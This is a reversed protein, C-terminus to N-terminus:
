QGGGALRDPTTEAMMADTQEDLVASAVMAATLPALLIGNRYHGTAMMVRPFARPAGIFPLGDPSAPRLGARADILSASSAGPLLATVATMLGTIGQVTTSEDFGVEEVTAGVLLTGDSWPVTYCDPGWVARMPPRTATWRLHLLQGRVPRVLLPAMNAVRVRKSWSGAAVVVRDAHYTREGARVLVEHSTAAIDAAEIPSELTAGSQRASQLLATVLTGVGVFGHAAIFLGGRTNPGLAPEFTRAAGADLWENAVGNSDLWSKVALLRQQDADGIAIELTGTRAYEIARGSRSRIDAIWEDFMALSRTGMRLLPTDSHAETYPALLGASAWSAGRGPARMELVTVDTGRKALADAVAAGIIGAGIVIITM